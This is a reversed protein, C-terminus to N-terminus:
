RGRSAPGGAVRRIEAGRAAWDARVLSFVHSDRPRGDVGLIRQRLTGEHVFGLRRAVASSRENRPDCYIEVRAAGLDEFCTWALAAVAETVYGHGVASTRLWYGIEFSPLEWRVRHLGSGGLLRGDARGFLGLTFDERADFLARLRRCTETSADITPHKDAWPLWRSLEPTSEHVAEFLAPGDSAEYPRLVLRDTEIRSPVVPTPPPPQAPM